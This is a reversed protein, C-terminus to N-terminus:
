PQGGDNVRRAIYNVNFIHLRGQVHGPCPRRLEKGAPRPLAPEPADPRPSIDRHLKCEAVIFPDNLIWPNQNRCQEIWSIDTPAAGGLM